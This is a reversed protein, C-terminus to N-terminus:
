GLVTVNGRSTERWVVCVRLLALKNLVADYCASNRLVGYILLELNAACRFTIRTDSLKIRTPTKGLRQKNYEFGHGRGVFGCMTTM